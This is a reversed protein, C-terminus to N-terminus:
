HIFQALSTRCHGAVFDGTARAAVGEKGEGMDRPGFCKTSDGKGAKDQEQMSTTLDYTPSFFTDRCLLASSHGHREGFPPAARSGLVAALPM